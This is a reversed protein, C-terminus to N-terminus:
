GFPMWGLNAAAGAGGAMLAAIQQWLPTEPRSTVTSGYGQGAGQILALFQALKNYDKQQEFNFRAVEQDVDAQNLQQQRQGAGQLMGLDHYDEAALTPAANAAWQLNAAQVPAYGETLGRSLEYAHTGSGYRGGAAFNANVSPKVRSEISNWLEDDLGRGELVDTAYGQAAKTLPSGSKARETIGALASQEWPTVGAVTSGGYYKPKSGKFWDAGGKYIMQLYPKAIEPPENRQVTEEDGGGSM